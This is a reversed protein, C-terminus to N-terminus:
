IFASGVTHEDLVVLRKLRRGGDTRDLVFDYSWLHDRHKAQRRIGDNESGGSLRQGKRQKALVLLGV